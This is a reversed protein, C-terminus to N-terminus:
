KVILKSKKLKRAFNRKDVQKNKRVFQNVASNKTIGEVTFTNDDQQVLSIYYKVKSM